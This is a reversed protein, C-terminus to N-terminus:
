GWQVIEDIRTRKIGPYFAMSLADAKDPSRGALKSKIHAKKEVTVRDKSDPRWGIALLEERLQEDEPVAIEGRTLRDNLHWFAEARANRHKESDKAQFSGKFKVVPWGKEKLRSWVGHGVGVADVVIQGVSGFGPEGYDREVGAERAIGVTRTVTKMADGRPFTVFRELVDGRRVAAVSRDSEVGVDLGIIPETDAEYADRLLRGIRHREEAAEIDALDFLGFESTTPFEADVRAKTYEHDRGYFRITEEVWQRSIGGKIHLDTDDRLNPHSHAPIRIAEWDPSQTVRYFMGTPALPNGVALFRDDEATKDALLGGWVDDAIGQCESLVVLTGHPHHIGTVGSAESSTFGLIGIGRDRDAWLATTYLEGVLESALLFQRFQGFGVVKVQREVFSTYVVRRGQVFAAFMAILCAGFDKGTANAGRVVTNRNTLYSAAMEVQKETLHEVGCQERAFARFGDLTDPYLERAEQWSLGDVREELLEGHERLLQKEAAEYSKVPSM